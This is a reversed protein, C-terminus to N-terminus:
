CFRMDMAKSRRQVATDTLIGVACKNDFQLPTPGQPHGMEQLTTRIPVADKSNIFRSGSEQVFSMAADIIKSNVLTLANLPPPPGDPSIPLKPKTSLYFYGGSHSRAKSENLYSADTHLWLHMESAKYQICADPHTAAYDLFQNMQFSIDKWSSISISSAISSVATQTTNDEIAHAYYNFIGTFEQCFKVQAPTLQCTTSTPKAYQQKQGYVPKAYDYPHPSHQPKKPPSHHLQALAKTVYNPMSLDVTSNTYDWDLCIGCFIKGDRDITVNYHKQLSHILHDAHTLGVVKVGFDDIVLNFDTPRTIHHFLGPTHGTPVYGNDAPHKILKIYALQGAQPLGYMGTRIEPLLQKNKILPCLNYEQM